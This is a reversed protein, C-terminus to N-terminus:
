GRGTHREMEDQSAEEPLRVRGYAEWANM